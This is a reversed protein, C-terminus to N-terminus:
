GVQPMMEEEQHDSTKSKEDLTQIIHKARDLARMLSRFVQQQQMPSPGSKGAMSVLTNNEIKLLELADLFQRKESTSLGAQQAHMGVETKEQLAKVEADHKAQLEKIEILKKKVLLRMKENESKVQDLDTTTKALEERMSAFNKEHQEVQEFKGQLNNLKSVMEINRRNLDSNLQALEAYGRM